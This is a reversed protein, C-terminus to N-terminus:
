KAKSLDDGGDGLTLMEDVLTSMDIIIMSLNNLAHHKEEMLQGIQDKNESVIESVDSKGAGDVLQQYGNARTELIEIHITFLQNYTSAYDTALRASQECLSSSRAAIDEWFAKDMRSLAANIKGTDFELM